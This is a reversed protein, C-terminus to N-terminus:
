VVVTSRHVVIDGYATRARVEATEGSEGPGDTGALSNRVHGFRTSVDLWAATGERIGIELSGASSQIAISGRAVEGIRVSGLSTKADVAAHSREVSIDGNAATCRLDGTIEGIWTEGNSNRITAGGDITGIRLKGSGATIDAPGTAHDVSIDGLSTKLRLAGTQELRLDGAGLALRCDGLRGEGEIDAAAANGEVHSGQPLEITVDVSGDNSFLFSARRKPSRVLLRGGSYEVRTQEADKVDAESSSNSPRM